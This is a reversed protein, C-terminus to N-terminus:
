QGPVIVERTETMTQAALRVLDEERVKEVTPTKNLAAEDEDRANPGTYGKVVREVYNYKIKVICKVLDEEQINEVTAKKECDGDDNLVETLFVVEYIYQGGVAKCSKIKGIKSEEAGKQQVERADFVAENELFKAAGAPAAGAPPAVAQPLADGVDKVRVEKFEVYYWREGNQVILSKIKGVNFMGARQMGQRAWAVTEGEVFKANAQVNAFEAKPVEPVKPLNPAIPGPRPKPAPRVKPESVRVAKSGCCGPLRFFALM